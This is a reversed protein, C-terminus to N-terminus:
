PQHGHKAEVVFDSIIDRIKSPNSVNEFEIERTEGATQILVDGYNFIVNATGSVSSTVDEINRIAAESIRKNLLGRFDIDVVKKDSVIYANFFWLLFSHLSVGFIMLYWFITLILAFQPTITQTGALQAQEYFLSAVFPVILMATAIFIWNLNILFSGRFLYVIKEDSDEGDYHANEPKKIFSSLLLEM